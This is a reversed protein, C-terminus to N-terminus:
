KGFRALLAAEWKDGYKLVILFLALGGAGLLLMAWLPLSLASGGLACAALLGWPRALLVMLFFRGSPLDTLGALICLLDDPFFPFLFALFLFVDRKRRIVDLYRASITQSVLQDAFSRGLVKALAFVLMSGACVAATTLLFAPWTGFLMAGALATINSPIPALIVSLLQILFYALHSYPALRDIYDRMAALSSMAQFFGTRWLVIAGGLLLVASLFILLRNLRKM